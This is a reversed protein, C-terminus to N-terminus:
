SALTTLAASISTCKRFGSEDAKRVLLLMRKRGKLTKFDSKFQADVEGVTMEYGAGDEWIEAYRSDGMVLTNATLGNNEIVRIGDIVMGSESTFPPVIYNNTSDKKLKFKNIDAINMIVFNPRYKSGNGSTINESMKVILDYINADTIGSAAATYASAYTYIGKINPSTGNGSLLQTDEVISINVGLFREVEGALRSTDRLAEETIPITDGIKELTQTYEQFTATSEPFAGGEAVMAAARVTTAADWDIYRVVGNHEPSLTRKPFM